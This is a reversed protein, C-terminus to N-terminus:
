PKPAPPTPPNIAGIPADPKPTQYGAATSSASARSFNAALSNVFKFFFRYFSGSTNDPMQLSGVFASMIYYSGM